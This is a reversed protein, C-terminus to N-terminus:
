QVQMLIRDGIHLERLSAMVLGTSAKERADVVMIRGYIEMPLSKDWKNEPKESGPMFLSDERRVVDFFNGEQVGNKTGQDIFVLHHEGLLEQNVWASGIIYGRTIAEVPLPKLKKVIVARQEVPERESADPLIDDLQLDSLHNPIIDAIRKFWFNSIQTLLAGKGPIPDPLVVDFASLRDTTVILMHEDDVAYIDRVKGQQILPLSKIKSEFLADIAPRWIIPANNVRTAM